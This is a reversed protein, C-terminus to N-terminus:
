NRRFAVHVHRTLSYEYLISHFTFSARTEINASGFLIEQQRAEDEGQNVVILVGGPRLSEWAQKLLEQPHYEKQPLGWDLHDRVFIFPFFMTALHWANPIPRYANPIYNVEELNACYALAHDYRSYFNSYIRYPDAEYGCLEVRRPADTGWFKLFQYMGRVYFWSSPGIDVAQLDPSLSAQSRECAQELLQIYYLNERYNDVTSRQHLDHLHYKNFLREAEQVAARREATPLNQYLNDKKENGLKLGPRSWHFAQRLPFDISNRLNILPNFLIDLPKM